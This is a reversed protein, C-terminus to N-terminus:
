KFDEIWIILIINLVQLILRNNIQADLNWKDRIFIMEYNLFNKM